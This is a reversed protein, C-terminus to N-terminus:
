FANLAQSRAHPSTDRCFPYLPFPPAARVEDDVMLDDLDDDDEMIM